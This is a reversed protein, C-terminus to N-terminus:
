EKSLTHLIDTVLKRLIARMVLRRTINYQFNPIQLYQELTFLQNNYIGEITM